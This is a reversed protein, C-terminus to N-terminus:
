HGYVIVKQWPRTQLHVIIIQSPSFKLIHSKVETRIASFSTQFHDIYFMTVVFKGFVM